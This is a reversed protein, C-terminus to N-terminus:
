KRWPDEGPIFINPYPSPGNGTIRYFMTWSVICITAVGSAAGIAFMLTLMNQSAYIEM